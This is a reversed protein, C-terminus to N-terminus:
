GRTGGERLDDLPTQLKVDRPSTLTRHYEEIRSQWEIREAETQLHITVFDTWQTQFMHNDDGRAWHWNIDAYTGGGAIAKEDAFVHVNHFDTCFTQPEVLTSGSTQTQDDRWFNKTRLTTVCLLQAGVKNLSAEAIPTFLQHNEAPGTSKKGNMPNVIVMAVILAAVAVLGASWLGFNTIPRDGVPNVPNM